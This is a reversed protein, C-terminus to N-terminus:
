MSRTSEADKFAVRCRRGRLVGDVISSVIKEEISPMAVGPVVVLVGAKLIVSSFSISAVM